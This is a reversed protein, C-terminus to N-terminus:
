VRARRKRGVLSSARTKHFGLHPFDSLAIICHTHRRWVRRGMRETNMAHGMGRHTSLQYLLARTGQSWAPSLPSTSITATSSSLARWLVCLVLTFSCLGLVTFETFLVVKLLTHMHASGLARARGGAAARQSTLVQFQHLTRNEKSKTGHKSFTGGLGLPSCPFPAM